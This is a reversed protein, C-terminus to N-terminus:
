ALPTAHTSYAGDGASGNTAGSSARSPGSETGVRVIHRGLRGAVNIQLM